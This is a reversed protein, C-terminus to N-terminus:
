VLSCSCDIELLQRGTVERGQGRGRGHARGEEVGEPPHGPPVHRATAVEGRPCFSNRRILPVRLTPGQFCSPGRCQMSGLFTVGSEGQRLAPGQKFWGLLPTVRRAFM